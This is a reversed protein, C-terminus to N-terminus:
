LNYGELTLVLGSGVKKVYGRRIMEQRAHPTLHSLRSYIDDGPAVDFSGFRNKMANCLMQEITKRM